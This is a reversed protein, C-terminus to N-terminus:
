HTRELIPKNNFVTYRFLVVHARNDNTRRREFSM